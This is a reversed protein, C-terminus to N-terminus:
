GINLSLQVIKAGKVVKKNGPLEIVARLLKGGSSAVMGCPPQRRSISSLTSTLRHVCEDHIMSGLGYGDVQGNLTRPGNGICARSCCKREGENGRFRVALRNYCM